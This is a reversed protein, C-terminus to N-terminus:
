TPPATLALMTIPANTSRAPHSAPKARIEAAQTIAIASSAIVHFASFRSCPSAQAVSGCGDPFPYDEFDMTSPLVVFLYQGYKDIVPGTVPEGAIAPTGGLLLVLIFIKTTLHM